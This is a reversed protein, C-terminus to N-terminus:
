SFGAAVRTQQKFIAHRASHKPSNQAFGECLTGGGAFQVTRDAIYRKDLSSEKAQEVPMVDMQLVTDHRFGCPRVLM